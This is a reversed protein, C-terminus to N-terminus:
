SLIRMVETADADSKPAIAAYSPMRPRVEAVVAKPQEKSGTTAPKTATAFGVIRKGGETILREAVGLMKYGIFVGVMTILGHAVVIALALHAQDSREPFQETSLRAFGLGLEYWDVGDPAAVLDRAEEPQVVLSVQIDELVGIPMRARRCAEYQYAMVERMELPDPTPWDELVSGALPRFICVTPFAGTEIIRDIARKTAAIPECGAIIEGAVRGKGLRRATYEMADYFTTQGFYRAKGPCLAAFIEPTEFEVCFSFHDAGVDIAHDYEDLCEGALPPAQLGIFGGVQERVATIYPLAQELGHARRKSADHEFSFGTNFHTFVVGSEERAAHAVEVVDGVSKRRAENRGINDGTTCFRCNMPEPRTHWFGCPSGLYIGLYTGQLIGVRTMPQGSTTMQSYWAPEPPLRVPYHDGPHEQDSIFLARGDSELVFSSRRAFPESVPVNAWIERPGPNLVLELGSGLGARTRTIRRANWETHLGDSIVLGRCFLEIELEVPKMM